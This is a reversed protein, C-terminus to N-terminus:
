NLGRYTTGFEDRPETVEIHLADQAGTSKFAEVAGAYQGRVEAIGVRHGLPDRADVIWTPRPVLAAVLDPLDYAKLVGPIVNEIIGRQIRFTEVSGYSILGGKLVVKKLRTDFVAHHLLPITAAGVAMGYIKGGDVEPRNALVDVGCEIDHARMAVLTKGLLMAIMANDYNPFLANWTDWGGEEWNTKRSTEGWGRADIALVVVGSKVLAEIEGGSNAKGKSSVYLVGPKRGEVNEPVFLLSPVIIGPESEYTLKEVRCGENHIVGFPKVNLPAAVPQYGALQQVKSRIEKGFAAVSQADTLPTRKPEVEEYRKQNLSFVTEGGLSITVQGSDTCRLAEESAPAVPEEPGNDERGKFWRDLWRYAALRRPQLYGHGNDAEFESVKDPAGMVSYVHQAEQYTERVGNISFFDRIASLILYPKPSFALVLDGHDLGQGIWPPICQEADQPGISELIRRWSTIYCSPMAVKIRDDLAALYATHTGGGSNGTCAIRAADVEPRSLLYDLARMGDWITYRALTDGLLLCQVGMDTHEDTSESIKGAELDPDYLQVREGQGITDWTFAVYGRRALTGLTQQWDENSKGGNEHGLPFLVGPYPPHGTKPLYLNGTVYFHPQSEFIVKEIKYGDRDLTGVVRANLPTRGPFGGLDRIMQERVYAQRKAVEEPTSLRAIQQRREELRSIAERNLYERLMSRLHAYDPLDSLFDFNSNQASLPAALVFVWLAPLFWRKAKM